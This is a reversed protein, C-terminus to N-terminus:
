AKDAAIVALKLKSNISENIVSHETGNLANKIELSSSGYRRRSLFFAIKSCISYIKSLSTETSLIDIKNSLKISILKLGLNQM